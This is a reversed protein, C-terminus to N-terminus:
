YFLCMVNVSCYRCWGALLSFASLDIIYVASIVRTIQTYLPTIIPTNEYLTKLCCTGTNPSQSLVAVYGGGGYM